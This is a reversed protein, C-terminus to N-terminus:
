TEAQEHAVARPIVLVPVPSHRIIKAAHSGLFVRAIPAADSSGVVLIDGDRWEVDELAHSWDHGHGVVIELEPVVQGPELGAQFARHAAAKIDKVWDSAVEAAETRFLATDPPSLQVAFSALRLSAGLRGAIDRAAALVQDSQETGGYAVTLRAVTDADGPRFGRTAMAVPIPSSHLLRDAVSSLTIHGFLGATSSGVAIMTAQHEEAAELLGHPGSRAKVAIFEASVDPPLEARAQALAREALKDTYALYETDLRNLGPMWPAPVVTCVVLSDGSSRALMAALSLVSRGRRNPPFGVLISM